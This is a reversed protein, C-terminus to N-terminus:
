NSKRKRVRNTVFKVRNMLESRNLIITKNEKNSKQVWMPANQTNCNKGTECCLCNGTAQLEVNITDGDEVDITTAIKGNLLLNVDCGPIEPLSLSASVSGKGVSEISNSGLYLCCGSTSLTVKVSQCPPCSSSSSESSSSPEESSSSPEESTSSGCSCNTECEEKTDYPGGVKIHVL